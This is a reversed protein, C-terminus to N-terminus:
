TFKKTAAYFSMQHDFKLTEKISKNDNAGYSSSTHALLMYQPLYADAAELIEFAGDSTSELYVRPYESSYKVGTQVKLHTVPKSREEDFVGM